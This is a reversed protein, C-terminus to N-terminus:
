GVALVSCPVMSCLRGGGVILSLWCTRGCLFPSPNRVGFMASLVPVLFDNITAPSFRTSPAFSGPMRPTVLDGNPSFSRRM